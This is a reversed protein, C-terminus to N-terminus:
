ALLLFGNIFYGIGILGSGLGIYWIYKKKLLGAITSLLITIQLFIVSMGFNKAHTQTQNRANEFGEAESKIERKENEYKKIKSAYDNIKNQYLNVTKLDKDIKDMELKESQLKYLDEKINKAQYYAWNDSAKSQNMISQTSYGGGKFTALTACVAFVVTSLALYNVWAEKKDEAM